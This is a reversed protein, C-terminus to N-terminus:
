DDTGKVRYICAFNGTITQPVGGAKHYDVIGNALDPDAFCSGHRVLASAYDNPSPWYMIERRIIGCKLYYRDREETLGSFGSKTAAGARYEGGPAPLQQQKMSVDRVPCVLPPVPYIM